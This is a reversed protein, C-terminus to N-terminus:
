AGAGGAPLPLVRMPVEGYAQAVLEVPHLVPLHVGKARLGAQWQLVCGPNATALVDVEAPNLTALKEALIADALVPNAVNYVGASGCCLDADKLPVMAVGPLQALVTYPQQQVGQAHHLHCAAHYAVRLPRENGSALTNQTPTLSKQALLALVDTTPISWHAMTSGCGAANVVVATLRPHNFVATNRAELTHAIDMEGAHHALAGCCTQAPPVWVAYGNVVLATITAAHVRAFWADMVCGAFLAVLPCDDVPKGQPTIVGGTTLAQQYAHWAPNNEVGAHLNAVNPRMTALRRLAAVPNLSSAALASLGLTEAVTIGWTGLRVLGRNPLVWQYVARRLWRKVKGGWSPQTHTLLHQRTTELLSGYPVGSPCATQCAVCGLCQDIYPQVADPTMRADGELMGKMLYLRGRPSEAESGTVQYTPCAPLCLGCHICADLTSLQEAITTTKAPPCPASVLTAMLLVVCLCPLGTGLMGSNGFM